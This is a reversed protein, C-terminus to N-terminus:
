FQFYIFTQERGTHLLVILVLAYYVAWRAVPAMRWQLGALGHQQERQLWEVGLMIWIFPMPGRIFLDTSLLLLQGPNALIRAPIAVLFDLASSIDPSRFFVWAVDVLAFTLIMRVLDGGKPLLANPAATAMRKRNTSTILMPLFFLAHLGGWALFTWNAGHWFGSVLFIIFTNRIRQSLGGRSGGLPIYLYDRFWTSLSIHWRRWFEAIDRSFYPYAFNRMLGFGFLRAIGIAMDSYGSFDGYIQFAFLIAAFALDSGSRASPDDFVMNVLPACQDAIVVKKFLGWLAQRTGDVANAYDFTRPKQFQPLLNTGREIPGAVLQPFFMLYAGFAIPDREAKLQDRYVDITYSLSQFTYFSIGVPLIIGLTTAQIPQGLFTFAEAFSLAFFDWYKFFGLSGLNGILSLALWAKRSRSNPSREIGLAATYDLAGSFFVLGLFRWDWWGYFFMSALLLWGNGAKFSWREIRWFLLLVLPLFVSFEISNFLM